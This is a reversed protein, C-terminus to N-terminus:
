STPYDLAAILEGFKPHNIDAGNQKLNAVANSFGLQLNTNPTPATAGTPAPPRNILYTNLAPAMPPNTIPNDFTLIDSVSQVARSDVVQSYSANADFRQAILKLVSTHDLVGHYVSGPKVFPSIIYAPIRPGLSNFPSQNSWVAGTQAVTPILPPSVHDFFAGNEDYDVIM